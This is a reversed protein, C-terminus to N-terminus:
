SQDARQTSRRREANGDFDAAAQEERRSVTQIVGTCVGGQRQRPGIARAPKRSTRDNEQRDEPTGNTGARKAVRM